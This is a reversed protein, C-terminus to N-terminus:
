RLITTLSSYRKNRRGESPFFQAFMDNIREAPAVDTAFRFEAPRPAYFTSDYFADDFRRDGAGFLAESAVILGAVSVVAVIVERFDPM